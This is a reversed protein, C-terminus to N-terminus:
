GGQEALFVGALVLAGGSVLSTTPHEALLPVAMATAFLPQLYAFASVRSAPVHTLAYYYILCCVVSPFVAMYLLSSWGMWTVRQFDFEWGYGLTLPLMAVATGAYAFTNVVVGGLRKTELKGKVTFIAFTFSSCFILVDGLLSSGSSKGSSVQLVVVGALATFMGLLRLGNLRELGMVSALFLVTIPTMGVVIAAHSVTTMSIGVVFFLQNIGIGIVGLFALLWFDKRTWRPIKGKVLHWRYVGMMIFGALTMRLGSTLVAPFERLAFKAIIFNLSWLTTMGAILSYIKLSSPREGM